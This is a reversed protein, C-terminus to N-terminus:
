YYYYIVSRFSMEVCVDGWQATCPLSYAHIGCDYLAVDLYVLFLFFILYQAMSIPVSHYEQLIDKFSIHTLPMIKLWHTPWIQNFVPALSKGNDLQLGSFTSYFTMIPQDPWNIQSHHSELPIGDECKRPLNRNSLHHSWKDYHWGHPM